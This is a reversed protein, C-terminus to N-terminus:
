LLIYSTYDLCFLSSILSLSSTFSACLWMDHAKADVGKQVQAVKDEKREDAATCTEM